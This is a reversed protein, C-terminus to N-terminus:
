PSRRTLTLVVEQQVLVLAVLVGQPPVGARSNAIPATHLTHM